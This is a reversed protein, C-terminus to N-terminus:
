SKVRKSDKFVLLVKHTNPPFSISIKSRLEPTKEYVKNLSNNLWKKQQKHNKTAARNVFEVYLDPLTKLDPYVEALAKLIRVGVLNDEGVPIQENTKSNILYLYDGDMEWSESRMEASNEFLINKDVEFKHRYENILKKELNAIEKENNTIEDRTRNHHFIDRGNRSNAICSKPPALENLRNSKKQLEVYEHSNQIHAHLPIEPDEFSKLVGRSKLAPCTTEWFFRDGFGFKILVFNEITIIEENPEFLELIPTEKRSEKNAFYTDKLLNIFDSNQTETDM